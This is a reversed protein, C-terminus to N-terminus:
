RFPMTVPVLSILAFTLAPFFSAPAQDGIRSVTKSSKQDARKRQACAGYVNKKGNGTCYKGTM